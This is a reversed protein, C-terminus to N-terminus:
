APQALLGALAADVQRVYDADLGFLGIHGWDTEMVTLRSEPILMQEAACDATVFFQDSSIPMVITRAEIRGLAAALDGAAHRGVDAGIWKRAMCILDNPDHPLFAAYLFNVLFDDFSSFGAARWGEAKLFGASLGMLAWQRAHRCLGERVAHPAPYWGGAWAPDSTIADILTEVYLRDHPTTRATGAIPAARRVKAPFRVAWEYVQQAGMSCGVVLALSEIGFKLRLLREQAVVDDGITVAPFNGM